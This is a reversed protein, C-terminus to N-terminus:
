GDPRLVRILATGSVRLRGDHGRWPLLLREYRVRHPPAHPPRIVAEVFELVPDGRHAVRRYSEAARMAFVRDPQDAFDRGCLGLAACPAYLTVRNPWAEIALRGAEHCVLAHEGTGFGLPALPAFDSGLRGDAAQWAWFTDLLRRRKRHELRGLSLAQTVYDPRRLEGPTMGRLHDLRAAIDEFNNMVEAVASRREDELVVRRAGAGTLLWLVRQLCATSLTGGELRIRVGSGRQRTIRVLGSDAARGIAGPRFATPSLTKGTETVLVDMDAGIHQVM